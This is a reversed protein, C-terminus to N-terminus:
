LQVKIAAITVYNYCSGIMNWAWYLLEKGNGEALQLVFQIGTEAAQRGLLLAFVKMHDQKEAFHASFISLPAQTQCSYYNLKWGRKCATCNQGPSYLLRPFLEGSVLLFIGKIVTAIYKLGSGLCGLGSAIGFRWAQLWNSQCSIFNDAM